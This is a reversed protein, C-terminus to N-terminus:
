RREIALNGYRYYWMALEMFEQTVDFYNALEWPETMGCAIADKLEDEPVLKKIAWRNARNEYRQVIFDPDRKTYFSETACHGLEHATHVREDAVTGVLSYDLAIYGPICLAKAHPLCGTLITINLKDAEKYLELM